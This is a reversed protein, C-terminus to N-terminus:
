EIKIEKRGSYIFLHTEILIEMINGGQFTLYHLIDQTFVFLFLDQITSNRSKVLFLNIGM